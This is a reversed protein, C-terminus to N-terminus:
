RSNAWFADFGGKSAPKGDPGVSRMAWGVTMATDLMNGQWTVTARCKVFNVTFKVMPGMNTGSVLYPIGICGKAPNNNTFTGSFRYRVVSTIKMTSGDDSKWVQGRLVGAAAADALGVIFLAVLVVRRM